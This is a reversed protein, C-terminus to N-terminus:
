IMLTAKREKIKHIIAERQRERLEAEEQEQEEVLSADEEIHSGQEDSYGEDESLDVLKSQFEDAVLQERLAETDINADLTAM